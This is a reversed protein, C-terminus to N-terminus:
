ATKEAKGNNRAAERQRAGEELCERLRKDRKDFHNAYVKPAVTLDKHGLATSVMGTTAGADILDMAYTHRAAYCFARFPLKNKMRQFRSNIASPTWPKDQSNRLLTGEPRKLCLKRLLVAGRETLPFWQEGPKGDVEGDAFRVEMRDFNVHRSALIRAQQPRTGTELLVTMFEHFPDEEGIEKLVVAWEEHKLCTGRHRKAPKHLKALPNRDFYEMDRVAWNFVRKVCAIAAHRTNPNSNKPYHATLWKEVHHLQLESVRLKPSLSHSFSRLFGLHWKYTRLHSNAKDWTLFVDILQRVTSNRSPLAQRELDQLIKAREKDAEKADVALRREERRGSDYTIKCYYAKHSAKLYLQSVSVARENM